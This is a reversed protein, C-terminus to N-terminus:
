AGGSIGGWCPCNPAQAVVGSNQDEGASRRGLTKAAPYRRRGAGRTRWSLWGSPCGFRGGALGSLGASVTQLRLCPQRIM